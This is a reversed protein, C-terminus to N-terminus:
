NTKERERLAELEQYTKCGKDRMIAEQVRIPLCDFPTLNGEAREVAQSLATVRKANMEDDPTSYEFYARLFQHASPYKWLSHLFEFVDPM